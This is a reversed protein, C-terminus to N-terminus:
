DDWPRERFWKTIVYKVGKRVKMGQHLTAGNPAGSALQNNWCLMKGTEPQIIKDIVKFRTAGGAEPENLYIMATWTRQGAVACHAMYDPGDPEFYDTHLKFEQGPAYRQGQMPEGVIVGLGLFDSIRQDIERTLPDDADLDCTESTRFLPDGNDDAITSPRRRADIMAVISACEEDSLFNRRIYLDLKATPVRQAADFPSMPVSM